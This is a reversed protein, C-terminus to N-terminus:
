RGELLVLSHHRTNAATATAKLMQLVDRFKGVPKDDYDTHRFCAGTNAVLDVLPRKRSRMGSPPLHPSTRGFSSFRSDAALYGVGTLCSGFPRSYAPWSGPASTGSQFTWM